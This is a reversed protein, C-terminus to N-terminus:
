SHYTTRLLQFYFKLNTIRPLNNLRVSSYTFYQHSFPSIFHILGEMLDTSDILGLISLLNQGYTTGTTEVIVYSLRSEHTRPLQVTVVTCSFFILFYPAMTRANLGQFGTEIQVEWVNVNKSRLFDFARRITCSGQKERFKSKLAQTRLFFM